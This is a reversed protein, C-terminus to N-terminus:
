ELAKELRVGDLARDYMGAVYGTERYGQKRYFRRAVASDARVEAKIRAIGATRAVKELWALMRGGVGARRRAPQVALLLLHATHDDYQMIGFAAVRNKERVVAVNTAADDIAERVRSATWGWPLGHEIEDRSLLAISIADANNALRIPHNSIM